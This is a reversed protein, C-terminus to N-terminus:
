LSVKPDFDPSLQYKSIEDYDLSKLRVKSGLDLLLQYM